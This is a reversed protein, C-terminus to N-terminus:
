NEVNPCSSGTRGVSLSFHQSLHQSLLLSLFSTVTNSSNEVRSYFWRFTGLFGLPVELHKSQSKIVETILYAM